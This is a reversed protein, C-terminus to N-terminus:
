GRSWGAGVLGVPKGVVYSSSGSRSRHPGDGEDPLRRRHRDQRQRPRVAPRDRLEDVPLWLQQLRDNLSLSAALGAGASRALEPTPQERFRRFLEAARDLADFRPNYAYTLLGMVLGVVIPDVGSNLVALWMAVGVVAYVLGLRVGWARLALAVALLGLAVLLPALQVDTSYVLGIVLLAM